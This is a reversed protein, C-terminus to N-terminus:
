LHCVYRATMQNAKSPAAAPELIRQSYALLHMALGPPPAGTTAWATGDKAPSPWSGGYQEPRGAGILPVRTQGDRKALQSLLNHHDAEPASSCLASVTHTRDLYRPLIMDIEASVVKSNKMCGCDPLVVSGEPYLILGADCQGPDMCVGQHEM